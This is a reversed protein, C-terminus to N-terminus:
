SREGRRRPRPARPARSVSPPGCPTRAARAQPERELRVGPRAAQPLQWRAQGAARRNAPPPVTRARPRATGPVAYDNGSPDQWGCIEDVTGDRRVHFKAAVHSIDGSASDSCVYAIDWGDGQAEADIWALAGPVHTDSAYFGTLYPGTQGVAALAEELSDIPPTVEEAIPPPEKSSPHLWGVDPAYDTAVVRGDVIVSAWAYYRAPLRELSRALMEDPSSSRGAVDGGGGFELQAGALGRMGIEPNGYPHSPGSHHSPSCSPGISAEAQAAPFFAGFFTDGVTPTKVIGQPSEFYDLSNLM